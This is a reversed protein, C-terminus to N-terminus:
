VVSSIPDINLFLVKSIPLLSALQYCVKPDFTTVQSTGNGGLSKPLRTLILTLLHNSYILFM